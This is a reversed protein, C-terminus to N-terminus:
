RGERGAVSGSEVKLKTTTKQLSPVLKLVKTGEPGRLTVENGSIAAVTAAAIKDGVRYTGGDILALKRGESVIISQLQPGGSLAPAGSATSMSAQAPPQTPDRLTQACACSAAFSAVFLPTLFYCAFAESRMGADM